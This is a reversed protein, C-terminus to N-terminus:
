VGTDILTGSASERQGTIIRYAIALTAPTRSARVARLANVQARYHAEDAQNVIDTMTNCFDRTDTCMFGIDGYRDFLEKVLPIGTALVPKGFAIADMLVGSPSLEYHSGNYPLCVYHLQRIALSFDTRNAKVLGAKVTLPEMSPPASGPPLTGVAHFEVRDGFRGRLSSAMELFAPFGKADSALGLFGFRFPARLHYDAVFPESPPIPHPLVALHRALRPFEAALTDRISEELVVFQIRPDNGITLATRWDLIRLFPNRSRWGRLRSLWGHCVVQVENTRLAGRRMMLKIALVMAPTAGCLLLRGEPAARLVKLLRLALGVDVSWRRSPPSHRPALRVSRWMITGSIAEGIESQLHSIHSAEGYFAIESSPFALRVIELLAANIAVHEWGWCVPECVVIM